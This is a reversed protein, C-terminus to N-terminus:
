RAAYPKAPGTSIRRLIAAPLGNQMFVLLDENVVTLQASFRGISANEGACQITNGDKALVGREVVNDLLDRGTYARLQETVKGFVPLASTGSVEMWFGQGNMWLGALDLAAIDVARSQAQIAALAQQQALHPNPIPSSPRQEHQRAGELAMNITSSSAGMGALQGALSGWDM